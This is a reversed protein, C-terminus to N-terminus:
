EAVATRTSLEDRVERVGPTAEVAVRVARREAESSVVGSLSVVGDAVHVNVLWPMGWPQGRLQEEVRERLEHDRVPNMPRRTELLAAFARLLDARGVIGVVKRDRLVPVRKIRHKEMISAVAALTADESVTVVSQTMVDAAKVAHAKVFEDAITDSPTLLELWWSRHRETGIEARRMLDGESVIGVLRGEGDIVPVASIRERLLTDVVASVPTDPAVSVVKTVMVDAANM